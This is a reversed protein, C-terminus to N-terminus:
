SCCGWRDTMVLQRDDNDDDKDTMLVLVTMMM